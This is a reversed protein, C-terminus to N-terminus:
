IRGDGWPKSDSKAITTKTLSRDSTMRNIKYENDQAAM